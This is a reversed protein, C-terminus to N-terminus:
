NAKLVIPLYVHYQALARCWFGACLQYSGGSQTGAMSQGISGDLVYVGSESHGGGGAMVKWDITTAGNALTIGALLLFGTLALVIIARKM